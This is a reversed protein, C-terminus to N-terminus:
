QKTDKMAMSDADLVMGLDAETPSGAAAAGAAFDPSPDVDLALDSGSSSAMGARGKVDIFSPSTLSWAPWPAGAGYDGQHATYFHDDIQQSRESERM